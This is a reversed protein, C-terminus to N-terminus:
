IVLGTNTSIPAGESLLLLLMNGLARVKHSPFEGVEHKCGFHCRLGRAHEPCIAGLIRMGHSATDQLFHWGLQEFARARSEEFTHWGTPVDLKASAKCTQSLCMVEFGIAYLVPHPWDTGPDEPLECRILDLLARIRHALINAEVRM